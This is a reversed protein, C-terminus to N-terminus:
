HCAGCGTSKRCNAHKFVQTSSPKEQLSLSDVYWEGDIERAAVLGRKILMLLHVKTTAMERAAAELPLEQNLEKAKKM